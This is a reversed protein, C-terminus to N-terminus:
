RRRENFMEVGGSGEEGERDGEEAERSREAGRAVKGEDGGGGGREQSEWSRGWNM